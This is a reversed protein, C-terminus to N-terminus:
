VRVAKRALECVRLDGTHDLSVEYVQNGILSIRMEGPSLLTRLNACANQFHEEWENLRQQSVLFDIACGQLQENAVLIHDIEVRVIDEVTVM